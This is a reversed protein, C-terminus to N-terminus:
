SGSRRSLFEETTNRHPFPEDPVPLDLARCIPEWGDKATWELLRSPAISDRIHRHHRDFAERCAERDDLRTTFRNGFVAERMDIWAQTPNAPPQFITTSASQWWADFDRLSLLVLADPYVDALEVAFSCLPWDVGAVYGDLLAKWDVPEGRGARCWVEVDEPHEFVEAMHYCRGGLLKQLAVKLSYTGTRGLGAGIVKM